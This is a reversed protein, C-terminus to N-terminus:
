RIPRSWTSFVTVRSPILSRYLVAGPAPEPASGIYSRRGGVARQAAFCRQLVARGLGRRQFHPDTAVPDIGCVGTDPDATGRCYAAIRGDPSRAVVSLEPRYWPNSELSRLVPLLDTESGFARQLCRTIGAHDAGDGPLSPGVVFGAAVPDEPPLADLDFEWECGTAPEASFGRAAFVESLWAADDAFSFRLGGDPIRATLRDVVTGVLGPDADRTIVCHEAAGDECIALAEIAPGRRVVACHRSFWGQTREEKLINTGWRWDIFRGTDWGWTHQAFPNSARLFRIAEDLGDPQLPEFDM